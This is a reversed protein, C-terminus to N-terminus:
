KLSSFFAFHGDGSRLIDWELRLSDNWNHVEVHSQGSIYGNMTQFIDADWDHVHPHIFFDQNYNQHLKPFSNFGFSDSVM